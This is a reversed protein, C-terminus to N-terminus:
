LIRVRLKEIELNRAQDGLEGQSHRELGPVDDRRSCRFAYAKRARRGFEHLGAVEELGLDLPDAHHTIRDASARHGGWFSEPVVASHLPEFGVANACDAGKADGDLARSSSEGHMGTLWLPATRKMSAPVTELGHAAM